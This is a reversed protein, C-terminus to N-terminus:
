PVGGSGRQSFFTFLTFLNVIATTTLFHRLTLVTMERHLLLIVSKKIAQSQKARKWPERYINQTWNMCKYLVQHKGWLIM